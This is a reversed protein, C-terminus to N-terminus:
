RSSPPATPPTRRDAARALGLLRQGVLHQRHPGRRGEDADAPLRPLRLLRRGLLRQLDEGLRARRRRRLQRRRRHRRQQVLLHIKDTEQDRAVEDRFSTSRTRSRSTPWTAHHGQRGARGDQRASGRRDRGHQSASLDCMAVSCGEAVLQRALERGMGTGGGTIVAIKGSFDKMRARGERLRELRGHGAVHRRDDRVLPQRGGHRRGDQEDRLCLHDARRYDLIILSGGYGGWFVTNPNPSPVTEGALGFGLGFTVPM